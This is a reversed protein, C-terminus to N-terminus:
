PYGHEVSEQRLFRIGHLPRQFDVPTDIDWAAEPMHVATAHMEEMRLLKRAGEDGRLRRAERWLTRPLIAPVGVVGTYTAAAARGPRRRWARILRHLSAEGVAPQDSLLLLAASARLPLVSLGVQLSGAMGHAWRSNDVSHTGPHHRRILSRMRLADAGIVVVVRGPTVAEAANVIRSLLTRGRIRLLQKPTGLRRSGGAALVLSWLDAPM